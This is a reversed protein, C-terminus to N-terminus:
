LSKRTKKKKKCARDLWQKHNYCSKCRRRMPNSSGQEISDGFQTEEECEICVIMTTSMESSHKNPTGSKPEKKVKASPSPASGVETVNTWYAFRRKLDLVAVLPRWEDRGSGRSLFDVGPIFRRMILRVADAALHTGEDSFICWGRVAYTMLVLADEAGDKMGDAPGTAMSAPVVGAAWIAKSMDTRGLVDKLSNDVAPKGKGDILEQVAGAWDKGAVALTSDNVVYGTAKGEDITLVLKGDKEEMTWPEKGDDKEKIKNAICELNEKKGLGDAVLVLALKSDGGEPDFGFVVSKWTDPGLNCEKAADMM